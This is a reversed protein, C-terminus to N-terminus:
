TLAWRLAYFVVAVFLWSAAVLGLLQFPWPVCSLLPPEDTFEPHDFIPTARHEGLYVVNDEPRSPDERPPLKAPWRDAGIQHTCVM